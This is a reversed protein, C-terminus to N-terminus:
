VLRDEYISLTTNDIQPLEIWEGIKKEWEEPQFCSYGGGPYLTIESFYVKRDISYLDIRAFPIGESLKRSINLMEQLNDPEDVTFPIPNHDSRYFPAEEWNLDLISLCAGGKSGDSIDDVGVYLFRPEGNFCYFKYSILSYKDSSINSDHMYKEVIIGPKVSKYVWERSHWYYNKSLAEDLRDKVKKFNLNQKNRCVVMGEGSNHTCKLVFENPLNDFDIEKTSYWVGGVLPILYDKGITDSVYERVKFKDVLQIYRDKRDYIKLWQLKENFGEPREWNIITGNKVWWLLSSYAKDSLFRRKKGFLLTAYWIAIRPNDMVKDIQSNKKEKM